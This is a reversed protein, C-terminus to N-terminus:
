WRGGHGYGGHGGHGYGGRGMNWAGYGGGDGFAYGGGAWVTRGDTWGGMMSGGMRYGGGGYSNGHGCGLASTSVLVASSAAMACVLKKFM